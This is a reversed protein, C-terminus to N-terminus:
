LGWGILLADDLDGDPEGLGPAKFRGAGAEPKGEDPQEALPEGDAGRALFALLPEPLGEGFM